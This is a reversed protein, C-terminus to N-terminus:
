RGVGNHGVFTGSKEGGWRTEIKPHLVAYVWKRSLDAIPIGARWIESLIWGSSVEPIAYGNGFVQHSRVSIVRHM